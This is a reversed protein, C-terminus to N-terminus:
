NKRKIGIYLAAFSAAGALSLAGLILPASTQMGALLLSTMPVQMIEGDVPDDGGILSIAGSGHIEVVLTKVKATLIDVHGHGNNGTVPLELRPLASNILNGFEDYMLIETDSPTAEGAEIDFIDIALIITPRSFDFIFQGASPSGGAQDDPPICSTPALIPTCDEPHEEQIIILKEGDSFTFGDTFPQNLDPDGGDTDGLSPDFLVAFDGLVLNGINPLPIQPPEASPDSTQTSGIEFNDAYITVGLGTPAGPIQTSFQTNVITGHPLSSFDLIWASAEESTGLLFVSSVVLLISVKFKDM